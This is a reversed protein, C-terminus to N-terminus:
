NDYEAEGNGEITVIIKYPLCIISEGVAQIPKHKVCIQDPCSASEMYCSGEEIVLISNESGEVGTPLSLTENETLSCKRYIKGDITIIVTKEKNESDANKRITLWLALGGAFCLICIILIWDAKKM